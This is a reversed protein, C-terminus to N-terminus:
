LLSSLGEFRTPIGKAMTELFARVGDESAEFMSQHPLMHQYKVLSQTQLAEKYTLYAYCGYGVLLHSPTVAEKLEESSVYTLPRSNPTAEVQTVATLLEDHSLKARGIAKKLCRKMSWIMRELMGGWWPAKELNYEWQVRVGSFYEMM